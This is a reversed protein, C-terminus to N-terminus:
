KRRIMNKLQKLEEKHRKASEYNNDILIIGITFLIGSIGFMAACIILFIMSGISKMTEM